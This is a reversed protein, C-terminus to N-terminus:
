ITSLFETSVAVFAKSMQRKLRRLYHSSLFRVYQLDLLILLIGGCVLCLPQPSARIRAPSDKSVPVWDYKEVCISHARWASIM